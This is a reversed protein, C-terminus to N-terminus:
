RSLVYNAKTQPVFSNSLAVNREESLIMLVQLIVEKLQSFDNPKRIYHMAGKKYLEDVVAQQFSTSFIIVKLKKLKKNQGIKELCQWGNKRPMNLDLFLVSPLEEKISELIHLLQEGDCVTTLQTPIQIEKLAEGFLFCDDEDDDALLITIAKKTMRFYYNGEKRNRENRIIWCARRRVVEDM